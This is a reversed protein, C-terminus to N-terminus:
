VKVWFEKRQKSWFIQCKFALCNMLWFKLLLIKKILIFLTLSLLCKFFSIAHHDFDEPAEM